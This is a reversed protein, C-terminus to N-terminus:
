PGSSQPHGAGCPQGRASKWRVAPLHAVSSADPIRIVHDPRIVISTSPTQHPALLLVYRKLIMLDDIVKREGMGALEEGVARVSTRLYAARPGRLGTPSMVSVHALVKHTCAATSAKNQMNQLDEQKAQRNQMYASQVHMELIHRDTRGHKAQKTEIM